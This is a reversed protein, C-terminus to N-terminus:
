IFERGYRERNDNQYEGAYEDDGFDDEHKFTYALADGRNPSKIGKRLMVEKPMLKIQKESNRAWRIDLLEKWEDYTGKLKGGDRILWDKLRWYMEARKNFFRPEDANEGGIVPYVFNIKEGLAQCFHHSGIADPFVECSEGTASKIKDREVLIRGMFGSSDSSQDYLLVEALLWTRHVMANYDKGQGKLDIGLKNVYLHDGTQVLANKLETETILPSWGDRDVADEDPFKNEMLIGFDMASSKRRIEEVDERKLRGEMIGQIWDINIHHYRPDNRSELFHNRKFPNGIEVLCNDPSDLIMRMIGTYQQDEILSSEDIIVNPAGFGMLAELLDTTRKGESSIIFVEGIRNDSIKFTLRNKSRERRIHDLNEGKDIKFKGLTYANDFTHDIIVGMIIGAKKHSPAVIAWKEPFTSIRTLAALGAAESKGYRTYCMIHVRPYLRKAICDFIETQGHTLIFPKGYRTKYRSKALEQTKTMTM